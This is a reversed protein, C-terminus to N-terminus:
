KKVATKALSGSLGSQFAPHRYASTQKDPASAANKLNLFDFLPQKKLLYLSWM